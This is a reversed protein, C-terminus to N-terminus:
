RSFVICVVIHPRCWEAQAWVGFKWRGTYTIVMILNETNARIWCFAVWGGEPEKDQGMKM